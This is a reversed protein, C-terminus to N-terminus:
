KQKKSKVIMIVPNSDENMKAALEKLKGSLEGKEYADVLQPAELLQWFESGNCVPRLANMNVEQRTLYDGNYVSYRLLTKEQNDYMIFTRPFGRGTDFDYINKITEMFYYRDSLLRLILFVGPAMSHISPTRVIFPHLKQDLSLSYITDSSHELLIWNGNYPIISPYYGPTTSGDSTQLIKKEKYSIEIKKTIEGDQKSILVFAGDNSYKSYCILNDQDYNMIDTYFAGIGENQRLSRKYNGFLDYVQIKRAYHNNVYIEDNAEDLAIGVINTYEEGGQGKRNIKRIAKGTRDYIFIDGDRNRNKILMIKAGIDQVYGQNIFDNSTELLVYEVDMFEQLILDKKSSPTDDINLTIFNVRDDTNQSCGLLFLLIYSLFVKSCRM